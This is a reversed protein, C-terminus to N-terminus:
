VLWGEGCAVMVLGVLLLLALPSKPFALVGALGAAVLYRGILGVTATDSAAAARVALHGCLMLVPGLLTFWFALRREDSAGFRDFWGEALAAAYPLRFRVLGMAIHAAGLGFLVWSTGTMWNLKMGDGLTVM